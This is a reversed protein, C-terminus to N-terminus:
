GQPNGPASPPDASSGETAIREAAKVEEWAAEMQPLTAEALAIGRRSLLQEMRAFRSAFRTVAAHLSDEASVGLHRGLSVVAFLLDGMEDAATGAANGRIADELEAAEEVVKAWRAEISPWDFGVEAARQQCRWARLLAPLTRPIGAMISAAGREKAKRTEWTASEDHPRGLLVHTHRSTIKAVIDEIVDNLTFASQEEAIVAQFAVHLLVDGLEERVGAMNNEGIAELLEYTEELLFPALSSSTQARDWPCGAPGRLRHLLATLREM